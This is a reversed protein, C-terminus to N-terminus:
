LHDHLDRVHVSVDRWMYVTHIPDTACPRCRSTVHLPELTFTSTLVDSVFYRDSICCLVVYACSV